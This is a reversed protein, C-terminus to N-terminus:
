IPPAVTLVVPLSASPMFISQNTPTFVATLSHEGKPLRIILLAFGDAAPVPASLASTGDMFQITGAVGVAAVNALLVVPIGLFTPTPFVRLTTVTANQGIPANVVYSLENSTSSGFSSSDAPTFVAKLTHTGASLTTKTAAVGGWVPVAAGIDTADEIFRVSGLAPPSVTATLTETTVAAIASRGSPTVVLATVTAAPPADFTASGVPPAANAVGGLLLAACPVMVTAARLALRALSRSKGVIYASESFCPAPSKSMETTCCEGRFIFLVQGATSALIAVCGVLSLWKVYGGPRHALLIITTSTLDTILWELETHCM